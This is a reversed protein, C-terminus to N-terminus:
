FLLSGCCQKSTYMHISYALLLIKTPPSPSPEPPYTPVQSLERDVAKKIWKVEKFLKNFEDINKEDDDM